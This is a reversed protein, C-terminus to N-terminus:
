FPPPRNREAVYEDNLRREAAIAKARNQARTNRRKPMMVGRDGTTEPLHDPVVLEGTPVCLAPFLLKSGPNTAYAHGTPSTWIVTGDSLQRDLWGCFTKM